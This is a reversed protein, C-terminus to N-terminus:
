LNKEEELEETSISYDRAIKRKANDYIKAVLKNQNFWSIISSPTLIITFIGGIICMTLFLKNDNNFNIGGMVSVIIAIVALFSLFAKIFNATRKWKKWERRAHQVDKSHLEELHKTRDLAQERKLEEIQHEKESIENNKTVAIEDIVMEYHHKTDTMETEYHHKTDAVLSEKVEKLVDWITVESLNNIECESSDILADCILPHNKLLLYDESSLAEKQTEVLEMFKEKMAMTPKFGSYCYSLIRKDVMTKTRGLNEGCALMGLFMDTALPSITKPHAKSNYQAVIKSLATNSTLFFHTTDKLVKIKNNKRILYIAMVSKIDIKLSSERTYNAKLLAELKKEDEVFRTANWDVHDEDILSINLHIINDKLLEISEIVDQKTKGNARFFICVDSAKTIDFDLSEVWDKAAYLINYIEDLTHQFIELRCNSELLCKLLFKYEGELFEGAYGLARLVIPTDLVIIKNEFSFNQCGENLIYSRILTAECLKVLFEYVKRNDKQVLKLYQALKYKDGNTHTDSFEIARLNINNDGIFDDLIKEAKEISIKDSGYYKVFGDVLENYLDIFDESVSDYNQAPITDLNFKWENREKRAYHKAEFDNLIPHLIFLPLKYGYKEEYKHSLAEIKCAHIKESTVLHEVFTSFTEVPSDPIWKARYIYYNKTRQNSITM